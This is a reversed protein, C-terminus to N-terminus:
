KVEGWYHRGHEIRGCHAERLLWLAAAERDDDNDIDALICHIKDAMERADEDVPLREGDMEAAAIAAAQAANEATSCLDFLDYMLHPYRNFVM